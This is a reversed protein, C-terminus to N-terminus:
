HRGACNPSWSGAVENLLRCLEDCGYCDAGTKLREAVQRFEHFLLRLELVDPWMLADVSSFFEMNDHQLSCFKDAALKLEPLLVRASEADGIRQLLVLLHEAHTVAVSLRKYREDEADLMSLVIAKRVPPLLRACVGLSDAFCDFKMYHPVLPRLAIVMQDMYERYLELQPRTLPTKQYQIRMWFQAMDAVANFYKAHFVSPSPSSEPDSCDEALREMFRAMSPLRNELEETGVPETQAGRLVAALQESGCTLGMDACFREIEADLCVAWRERDLLTMQRVKAMEAEDMTLSRRLAENIERSCLAARCAGAARDGSRKDCVSRLSEHANQELLLQDANLIRMMLAFADKEDECSTIQAYIDAKEETDKRINGLYVHYKEKMGSALDAFHGMRGILMRYVCSKDFSKDDICRGWICRPLLIKEYLGNISERAKEPNEQAEPSVCVQILEDYLCNTRCLAGLLSLPYPSQADDLALKLPPLLRSYTDMWERLLASEGSPPHNLKLYLMYEVGDDYVASWTDLDFRDNLSNWEVPKENRTLENRYMAWRLVLSVLADDPTGMLNAFDSAAKAYADRSMAVDKMAATVPKLSEYTDVLLDEVNTSPGYKENLCEHESGLLTHLSEVGYAAPSASRVHAARFMYQTRARWYRCNLSEMREYAAPALLCQRLVTNIAGADRLLAACPREAAAASGADHVAALEVALKEYIDIGRLLMKEAMRESAISVREEELKRYVPPSLSIELKVEPMLYPAPLKETKEPMKKETVCLSGVFVLVGLLGVGVLSQEPNRKLYDSVMRWSPLGKTISKREANLCANGDANEVTSKQGNLESKIDSM